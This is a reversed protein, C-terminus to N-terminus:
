WGGTHCWVAGPEAPQQGVAPCRSGRSVVDLGPFRARGRAEVVGEMEHMADRLVFKM